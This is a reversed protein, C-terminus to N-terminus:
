MQRVQWRGSIFRLVVDGYVIVESVVASGGAGDELRTPKRVAKAGNAVSVEYADTADDM